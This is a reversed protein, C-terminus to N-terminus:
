AAQAMVAPLSTLTNVAETEATSPLSPPVQKAKMEKPFGVCFRNKNCSHKLTLVPCTADACKEIAMSVAQCVSCLLYDAAQSCYLDM